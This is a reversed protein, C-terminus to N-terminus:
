RSRERKGHEFAQFDDYKFFWAGTYSKYPKRTIPKESTDTINQLRISKDTVSIIKYTHRPAPESTYSARAKYNRADFEEGVTFIHKEEEKEESKLVAAVEGYNLKIWSSGTKMECFKPGASIVVGVWGRYDKITYGVKINHAGFEIGGLDSLKSEFFTLKDIEIEIKELWPAIAADYDEVTACTGDRKLKVDGNIIAHKAEELPIIRKEHEKCAKKCEEIKRWLYGRYLLKPNSATERATDARDRYYEGKAYEEFGKHYRNLLRERYNAFARSGAHGSIIPQTFFSTDGRFRNLEKQLGEGRKEANDAYQEYREARAEARESKVEIQEAYSLREGGEFGLNQAVKRAHYLNPEKCRSVWCGGYNSWLFNSKLEKKQEDRLALYESKEFHLEIKTTELNFVYKKM